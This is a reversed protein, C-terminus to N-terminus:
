ARPSTRHAWTTMDPASPPRDGRAFARVCLDRRGPWNRTSTPQDLPRGVSPAAADLSRQLTTITDVLLEREPASLALQPTPLASGTLPLRLGAGAPFFDSAHVRLAGRRIPPPVSRLISTAFRPLDRYWGLGSRIAFVRRIVAFRSTTPLCRSQRSLGYYHHCRPCCLRARALPRQALAAATQLFPRAYHGSHALVRRPVTGTLSRAGRGHGATAAFAARWGQAWGRCEPQDTLRDRSPDPPISGSIHARKCGSQPSGLTRNIPPRSSVPALRSQRAAHPAERRGSVSGIRELMTRVYTGIHWVNTSMGRLVAAGPGSPLVPVQLRTYLRISRRSEVGSTSALARPLDRLLSRRAARRRAPGPRVCRQWPGTLTERCTSPHETLEEGSDFGFVTVNMGDGRHVVNSVVTLAAVDLGM